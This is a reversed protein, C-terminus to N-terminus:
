ARAEAPDDEITDAAFLPNVAHIRQRALEVYDAEREVGVFSVGEEACAVGTTGSGTFPDLCRGGPPVVLRVLWRMLDVPKVTPHINQGVHVGRNREAPSPKAVYFFRSAGGVDLGRPAHCGPQGAFKGYTNKLKASGRTTPNAGSTLQGSQVDLMAAAIEDLLCNAPWRGASMRAQDTSGQQLGSGQFGATNRMAPNSEVSGEIRCGHVNIAGVGHERLNEAVTGDIPKRAVVIPEWSPKLATGWGSWRKAEETAPETVQPVFERGDDKIWSGTNVQDAGPIMRKVPKGQSVVAREAGAAKDIAKSVDLSKPFGQGFLWSFCDRVEFGADELGCTMRHFSRPAGCVLLYGGPKLVRFVERAWSECWAQFERQGLLTRDYEIQSPSMAPSQRRGRLNPNPSNKRGKDGHGVMFAKSARAKIPSFTDWKKGMFGIGYPPDTVCADISEAEFTPLVKFLDGHHILRSM